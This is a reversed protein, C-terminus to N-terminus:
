VLSMDLSQKWTRSERWDGTSNLRFTVVPANATPRRSAVAEFDHGVTPSMNTGIPRPRTNVNGFEQLNLNALYKMPATYYINQTGYM